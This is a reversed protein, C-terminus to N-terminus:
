WKHELFELLEKKTREKNNGKSDFVKHKDEFIKIELHHKPSKM